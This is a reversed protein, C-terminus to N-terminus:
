PVYVSPNAQKIAEAKQQAERARNRPNYYVAAVMLFNQYAKQMEGKKEHVLGLVFHYDGLIQMERNSPAAKVPLEGKIQNLIELAEDARGRVVLTRAKSIPGTLRILSTPYLRMIREALKESEFTKGTQTFANALESAAQGVWPTPNGLFKDVIPQLLQIAQEFNGAEAAAVGKKFDDRPELRLEDIMDKRYPITAGSFSFTVTGDKAISKVQGEQTEGSKLRIIDQGHSVGTAVMLLGVVLASTLIHFYYTVFSMLDTKNQM